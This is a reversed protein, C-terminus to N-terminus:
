YCYKVAKQDCDKLAAKALTYGRHDRPDVSVIEVPAIGKHAFGLKAAAAFSLDILRHGHFPGRDNIKVIVSRRNDLCTVKVYSPIPLTRHAATMKYLNYVEGSATKRGHFKTGYWSAIGKARYGRSTRLVRYRRNKIRYTKLTAVKIPEAKPVANPIHRTDPMHRPPGDKRYSLNKKSVCGALTMGLLLIAIWRGLPRM